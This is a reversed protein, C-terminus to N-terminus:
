DSNRIRITGLEIHDSGAVPLRRGTRSDYAGMILRYEGPKTAAPIVLGLRSETESGTRYADLPQSEARLRADRQAVVRAQDNLLQVFVVLATDPAAVADWALTILLPDGAQAEVSSLSFSRLHLQDGLDADPHWTPWQQAARGPALYEAFRVAGFWADLISHTSDSLWHDLIGAPDVDEPVRFLVFLPSHEEAIQELRAVAEDATHGPEPLEYVPLNGHYFRLLATEQGRGILVIAGNPSASNEIQRAIEQYHNHIRFFRYEDVHERLAVSAEPIPSAFQPLEQAARSPGPALLVLTEDDGAHTWIAPDDRDLFSVRRSRSTLYRFVAPCEDWRADTGPCLVLVQSSHLQEAYHDLNAAVDVLIRIPPGWGGPTDNTGIFRYISVSLFGQWIVLAGLTLTGLGQALRAWPAGLKGVWAALDCAAIALVLYVAPLIPLLYHPPVDSSSRAFIVLPSLLWTLLLGDRALANPQRRRLWLRVALWVVAIVALAEVIRDPLYDFSPLGQLYERFTVAGALSHINRGGISMLALDLIGPQLQRPSRLWEAIRRVNQWGNAADSAFYPLYMLASLGIGAALPAWFRQARQGHPQALYGILLALALVPLLTLAAFHVQTLGALTVLAASLAWHRKEFYWAYLFAFFVVVGPILLAQAQLQRSYFVAWAGIASLLSALLGVERGWYRKGFFYIAWVGFVNILAVFGLSVAPNRSLLNPISLLLVALPPNEVGVSSMMGKAPFSGTDVFEAALNSLRAADYTFSASGLDWLRLFGALALITAVAIIEWLPLSPRSIKM